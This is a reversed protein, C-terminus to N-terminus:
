AGEIVWVCASGSAEASYWVVLDLVTDHGIMPKTQLSRYFTDKLKSKQDLSPPIDTIRGTLLGQKEENWKKM